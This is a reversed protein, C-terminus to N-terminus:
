FIPFNNADREIAPVPEEYGMEKLWNANNRNKWGALDYVKSYEGKKSATSIIDYGISKLYDGVDSAKANKHEQCYKWAEISVSNAKKGHEKGYEQKNKYSDYTREIDGKIDLWSKKITWDDNSCDIVERELVLERIIRGGLTDLVEDPAEELGEFWQSLIMINKM